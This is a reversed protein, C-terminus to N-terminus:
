FYFPLNNILLGNIIKSYLDMQIQNFHKIVCFSLEMKLGLAPRLALLQEIFDIRCSLVIFILQYKILLTMLTHM